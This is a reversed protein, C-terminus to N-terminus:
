RCGRQNNRFAHSHSNPAEQVRRTLGSKGLAQRTKHRACKVGAYVLQAGRLGHAHCHSSRAPAVADPCGWAAADMNRVQQASTVLPQINLYADQRQQDTVSRAQRPNAIPSREFAATSRRGVTHSRGQVVRLISNPIGDTVDERLQRSLCGFLCRHFRCRAICLM